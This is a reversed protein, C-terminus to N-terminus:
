IITIFWKTCKEQLINFLFLKHSKWVCEWLWYISSRIKDFAKECNLVIPHTELSFEREETLKL